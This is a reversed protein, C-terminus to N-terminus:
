IRDRLTIKKFALSLKREDNNIGLDKPSIADPLKFEVVLRSNKCLSAPISIKFEDDPKTIKWEGLDTGNILARVRSLERKKEFLLPMVVCILEADEGTESNLSFAIAANEGLTWRFGAEPHGFGGLIYAGDNGDEGFIIEDRLVPFTEEDKLWFKETGDIGDSFKHLMRHPFAQDSKQVALLDIFNMTEPALNGSVRNEIYNRTLKVLSKNLTDIEFVTYDLEMLKGYFEVPDSGARVLGYPWYELLWVPRWGNDFLNRAGDFVLAEMGQTDSKVLDPLKIEGNLLSDLTAAKVKVSERGTGDDYLEHDGMNNPSLYLFAESDINSLAAQEIVANDTKGSRRLNKKLLAFNDEDPEIALIKGNEGVIKSAVVSYWGINAGIDMVFSGTKCFKLFIETEFIEWTHSRLLEGSVFPDDKRHIEMEFNGLRPAYVDVIWPVNVKREAVIQKIWQLSSQRGPARHILWYRAPQYLEAASYRTFQSSFKEDVFFANTGNINCCILVYDHKQLLDV